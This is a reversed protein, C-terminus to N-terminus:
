FSRRARITGGGGFLDHGIGLAIWKYAGSGKGQSVDM